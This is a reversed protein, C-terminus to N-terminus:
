GPGCGPGVRGLVVVASPHERRVWDARVAGPVSEVSSEYVHVEVQECLAQAHRILNQHGAHLPYFKGMVFGRRFRKM